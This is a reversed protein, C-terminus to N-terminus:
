HNLFHVTDFLIIRCCVPCISFIKGDCELWALNYTIGKYEQETLKEKLNTM